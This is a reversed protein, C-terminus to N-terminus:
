LDFLRPTTERRTTRPSIVAPAPNRPDHKLRRHATLQSRVKQAAQAVTDGYAHFWGYCRECNQGVLYFASGDEDHLERELHRVSM